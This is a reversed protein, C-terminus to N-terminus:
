LDPYVRRRLFDEIAENTEEPHELHLVHKGPLVRLESSTIIEALEEATEPAILGDGRGHILLVPCSITKALKETDWTLMQNTRVRLAQRFRRSSNFYFKAGSKIDTGRVKGGKSSRDVGLKFPPVIKELLWTLAELFPRSELLARGYFSKKLNKAPKYVPSILVLGEVKKPHLHAFYQALATGSSHAVVTAKDLKCLKWLEELDSGYSRLSYDEASLPKFSRGCGRQDYSLSGFGKGGFFERQRRFSEMDAGSGHLYVL